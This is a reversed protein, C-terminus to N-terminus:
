CRSEERVAERDVGARLPQAARSRGALPLYPEKGALLCGQERYAIARGKPLPYRTEIETAAKPRERALGTEPNPVPKTWGEM